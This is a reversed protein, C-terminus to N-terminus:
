PGVSAPANKVQNWGGAIVTQKGQPNQKYAALALAGMEGHIIEIPTKSSGSVHIKSLFVTKMEYRGDVRRSGGIEHM